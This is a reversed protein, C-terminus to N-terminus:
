VYLGGCLRDTKKLWPIRAERLRTGGEIGSVRGGFRAM